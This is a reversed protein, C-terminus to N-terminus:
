SKRVQKQTEHGTGSSLEDKAREAYSAATERVTDLKGALNDVYEGATDKLAGMYRSGEKSLKKRTASGKDPAFLVGLAAGAAMGILAGLAIRGASM